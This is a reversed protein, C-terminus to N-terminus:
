SRSGLRAALLGQNIPYIGFEMAAEVMALFNRAPVNPHITNSSGLIYGGGLAGELINHITEERVEEESGFVLTRACDVAGWLALKPFKARLEGLRMGASADIEGYGDVGTEGFLDNAIPWVNGDTRYLYVLGLQHCLEVIRRLRPLVLSRFTSPSYVPGQRCALDGGGLIFDVGHKKYQRALENHHRVQWDLYISVLEPRTVSAILWPTEIPIGVVSSGAIGLGDGVRDVVLDMVAFEENDIDPKEDVLRECIRQIAPIGERRVSSDVFQYEMTEPQYRAVAWTRTSEDEFCYTNQDIKREAASTGILPPNVADLGLRLTLEQLDRGITEVLQDREGRFLAEAIRRWGIGGGGTSAKRGLIESAVNDAIEQEFVPM